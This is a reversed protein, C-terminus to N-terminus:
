ILRNKQCADPVYWNNRDFEVSTAKIHFICDTRDEFDM